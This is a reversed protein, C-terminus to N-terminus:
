LLYATYWGENDRITVDADYELLLNTTNAGGNLCALMLPTHGNPDKADVNAGAELL